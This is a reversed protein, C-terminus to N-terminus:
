EQHCVSCYVVTDYSGEASCSPDVVNERVPDDPTHATTPIVEQALLIEGCVSCHSGETLGTGSCSPEVRPDTVETHGLPDVFHDTYTDGCSCTYTTYGEETCTPDTVTETYNHTHASFTYDVSGM